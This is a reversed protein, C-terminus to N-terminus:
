QLCSPIGLVLNKHLSRCSHLCRRLSPLATGVEYVVDNLSLSTSNTENPGVSDAVIIPFPISHNLYSPLLPVHSWLEGAGHGTDNTFFNSRTTGSLFHYSIMRGWVDTM